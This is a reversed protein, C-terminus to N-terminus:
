FLQNINYQESESFKERAGNMNMLFEAFLKVVDVNVSNGMQKYAQGDKDDLIFSDPFGQIRACERPTMYRLCKGIISTQVIAVLAPFYTGPKVRVGSPRFQIINSFIDPSEDDVGSQWEFKAKAGFFLKVKEGKKLWKDIFKKNANYYEWNNMIIAHKWEPIDIASFNDTYYEDPLEQKETFFETWIPFGPLRGDPTKTNQIFQNWHKLLAIEDKSLLYKENVEDELVDDICCPKINEMNFHFEPLSGIDKRLAMIFVRERHQPVGILHPSFITPKKLVNYGAEMLSERIVKWTKGEDHSALNRVNELLVYKPKHYDIIRMVDFFLTGKTKDKFGLRKGAKSFAQCNHVVIGYVNYTESKNVSINYVKIHKKISEVKKINMWIFGDKYFGYRNNPAIAIRYWQKNSVIRGEIVCTDSKPKCLIISTPTKYVDRAIQSFGYALDESTTAFSWKGNSDIHGDGGLYGDLLAKKRLYDLNFCQSSLKKHSAYRGFDKCFLCLWKNSIIFKFATREEVVTAHFGADSIIKEVDKVKHKGACIVVKYVYSNKRNKRKGDLVWGDALFRGILKWFEPTYSEDNGDICRYAVKELHQIDGANKWTSVGDKTMIWFPHEKTTYIYDYLGQPKIGIIDDTYHCMTATVKEFTGEKTLVSDGIIIDEINKYGDSTLVKTGAVFCPFGGCLVDHEPIDAEKIKTIDGAPELGYNKQYTKRCDNDIDCAFVCEGGLSSMAQHFGGVGCFLDIFKFSKKAM